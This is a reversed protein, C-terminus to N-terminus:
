KCGTRVLMLISPRILRTFPELTKGIRSNKSVPDQGFVRSGEPDVMLINVFEPVSMSDRSM